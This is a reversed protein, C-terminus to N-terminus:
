GHCDKQVVIFVLPTMILWNLVDNHVVSMLGGLTTYIMTVVMGLILSMEFTLGYKGFLLHILLGVAAMNGSLISLALWAGGLGSLKKLLPSDYRKLFLDGSSRIDIIDSCKKLKRAVGTLIAGWAGLSYCQSSILVGNGNTYAGASYGLLAGSGKMTAGQTCLTAFIGFSKGGLLFDDSQKAKRSWYVGNGIVAAFYIAIVIIDLNRIIM